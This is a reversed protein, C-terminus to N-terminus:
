DAGFLDRILVRHCIGAIEDTFRNAVILDAKSKFAQLDQVM